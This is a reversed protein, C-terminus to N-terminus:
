SGFKKRRLSCILFQEFMGEFDFIAYLSNEDYERLMPYEHSGADEIPIGSFHATATQFLFVRLGDKESMKVLVLTEMSPILLDWDAYGLDFYVQGVELDDATVPECDESVERSAFLM